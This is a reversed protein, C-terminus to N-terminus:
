QVVLFFVKSKKIDNEEDNCIGCTGLIYLHSKLLQSSWHLHLVPAFRAFTCSFYSKPPSRIRFIQHVKSHHVPSTNMFDHEIGFGWKTCCQLLQHQSYWSICHKTLIKSPMEKAESVFESMKMQQLFLPAALLSGKMLPVFCIFVM